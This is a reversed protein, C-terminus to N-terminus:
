DEILLYYFGVLVCGASAVVGLPGGNYLGSKLWFVDPHKPHAILCDVLYFLAGMGIGLFGQARKTLPKRMM